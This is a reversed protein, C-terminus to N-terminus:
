VFSSWPRRVPQNLELPYALAEDRKNIAKKRIKLWTNLGLKKWLNYIFKKPLLSVNSFFLLNEDQKMYFVHPQMYTYVKYVKM